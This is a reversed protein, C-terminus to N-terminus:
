LNNINIGHFELFELTEEKDDFKCDEMLEDATLDFRAKFYNSLVGLRVKYVFYNLASAKM